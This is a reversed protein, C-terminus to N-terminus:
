GVALIKVLDSLILELTSANPARVAAKVPLTLISMIGAFVKPNLTVSPKAQGDEM